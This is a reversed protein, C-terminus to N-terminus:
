TGDAGGGFGFGSALRTITDADMSVLLQGGGVSGHAVM